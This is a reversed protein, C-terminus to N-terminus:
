SSARCVAAREDRVLRACVRLRSHMLGREPTSDVARSQGAKQRKRCAVSLVAVCRSSWWRAAYHAEDAWRWKEVAKAPELRVRMM